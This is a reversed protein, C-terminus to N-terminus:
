ADSGGYRASLNDSYASTSKAIGRALTVAGIPDDREIRALLDSMAQMLGAAREAYQAPTLAELTPTDNKDHVALIGRRILLRVMESTSGVGPNQENLQEVAAALGPEVRARLVHTRQKEADQERTRAM